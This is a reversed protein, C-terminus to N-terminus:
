TDRGSILKVILSESTFCLTGMSSEFNSLGVPSYDGPPSIIGTYPQPHRRKVLVDLAQPPLMSTIATVRWAEEKTCAEAGLSLHSLRASRLSGWVAIVSALDTAAPANVGGAPGGTEGM